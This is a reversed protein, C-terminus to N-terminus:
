KSAKTTYAPKINPKAIQPTSSQTPAPEIKQSEFYERIKNFTFKRLWIPMNYVTNWDYGGNGNFVIEHISTFVSLRYAQTLGFFTLGLPCNLKRREVM